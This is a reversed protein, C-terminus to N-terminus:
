VVSKRDRGFLESEILSESLAACNVKIYPGTRRSSHRYLERAIMEKGTGNEGTILVTTDTRAVRRALQLLRKMTPNEGIIEGDDGNHSSLYSNVRLLQLSSEAKRLILDVQDLSFPKVIYDFAGAKMCSVAHDITGHGTMMVVLPRASMLSVHELLEHGDGDPLRVDLLMLDFSEKAMLDAAGAMSDATFVTYLKRALLNRLSTLVTPDDDLILIRELTM